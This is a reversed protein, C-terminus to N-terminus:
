IQHYDIILGSQIVMPLLCESESQLDYVRITRTPSMIKSTAIAINSPRIMGRESVNGSGSKTSISIIWMRLIPALALRRRYSPAIL